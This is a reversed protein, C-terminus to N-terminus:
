LRQQSYQPYSEKYGLLRGIGGFLKIIFKIFPIPINPAYSDALPCCRSIAANTQDATQLFTIQHGIAPKRITKNM